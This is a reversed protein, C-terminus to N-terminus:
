WGEKARLHTIHALHHHSHWAYILTSMEVTTKGGKPHIFGRKWQSENLSQLMMGWRAHLSEVLELSWEVPAESDHLQAWAKEDYPMITPWDDTLALRVRMYSVMHSDAVHHVLQRVTWGGVRYPTNLQERNLREVANRLLEPMQALSRMAETRDERTVVEPRLFRGIPYRPDAPERLVEPRSSM